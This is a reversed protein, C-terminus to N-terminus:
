RYIAGGKDAPGHNGSRLEEKTELFEPMKMVPKKSKIDIRSVDFWFRDRMEGKDNVGPDLMVQICGFLDFSLSIAVGELGTVRDKVKLGLLEFHKAIKITDM